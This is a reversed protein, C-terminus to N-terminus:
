SKLRVFRGGPVTTIKVNSDEKVAKNLYSQIDDLKFFGMKETDSRDFESYLYVKMDKIVRSVAVAKHGGLVFKDKLRKSIAGYDKAYGMWEEFVDEGFGEGCSAILIITGGPKAIDKINELAKQSQYLNIDKPYGGPSAIVIDAPREVERSYISEYRKVGELWAENNKGAVAEIINKSDDLIVNFIFDIGAMKGAEEIDERVPNDKVNGSVSRKDLMMSHNAQISARTCIGPMVAKAGGSYGAFYHYEINGTAILLDCDLVDEFVEVPTGASTKGILK